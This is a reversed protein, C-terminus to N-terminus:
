NTRRGGPKLIRVLVDSKAVFHQWLAGAAHLALAVIIVPKGIEHVEGLAGNGLYWALAGTVPMIFIAAYLVFHTVAAIWRQFAGEEAPPVPVGHTLRIALRLIALLLIAFGIYVHVDANLLDQTAAESGRRMARFAPAIEEGFMLQFVVLAAIVWHLLIQLMTYDVPKNRVAVAIRRSQLVSLNM